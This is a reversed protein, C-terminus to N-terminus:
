GQGEEEKEEEVTNGGSVKSEILVELKSKAPGESYYWGDPM